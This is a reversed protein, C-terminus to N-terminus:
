KGKEASLIANIHALAIILAKCIYALKIIIVITHPQYWQWGLKVTSFVSICLCM